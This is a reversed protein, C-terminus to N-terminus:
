CDTSQEFMYQQEAEIAQILEALKSCFDSVLTTARKLNFKEGGPNRFPTIRSYENDIYNKIQKGSIFHPVVCSLTVVDNSCKYNCSVPMTGTVQECINACNQQIYQTTYTSAFAIFENLVDLTNEVILFDRFRLGFSAVAINTSGTLPEKIPKFLTKTTLPAGSLPVITFHYPNNFVNNSVYINTNGSKLSLWLEKADYSTVANDKGKEMLKGDCLKNNNFIRLAITGSSHPLEFYVPKFVALDIVLTSGFRNVVIVTSDSFEKIKLDPGYSTICKEYAERKENQISKFEM